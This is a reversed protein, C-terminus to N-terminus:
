FKLSTASPLSNCSFKWIKEISNSPERTRSKDTPLLEVTFLDPFAKTFPIAGGFKDYILSEANPFKKIFGGVTSISPTSLDKYYSHLKGAVERDEPEVDINSVKAELEQATFNQDILQHLPKKKNPNAASRRPKRKPLFEAHM